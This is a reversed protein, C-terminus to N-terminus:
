PTKLPKIEYRHWKGPAFVVLGQGREGIILAGTETVIASDGEYNRSTLYGETEFWVCFTFRLQEAM